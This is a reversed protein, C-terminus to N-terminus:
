SSIVVVIGPSGVQGAGSNNGNLSAGGGGPGAGYNGGLGGNFASGTTASSGGAGGSGAMALSASANSYGSSGAAGISGTGGNQNQQVCTGGNGGAAAAPSVPLGGGSGGGPGASSSNGNNGTTNSPAGGSGGTIHGAGGTAATGASGTGGQGGNGGNARCKNGFSSAGGAGGANGDTNDTTVATGATGGTGVTVTETAGCESAPLVISSAGGGAGGGGAYCATGSAGRRGSGSGGSAAIVSAAVQTAWAPKTWTGSTTFVQVDVATLPKWTGPSGATTCVWVKGAQTVVFDGVVFTGSTPAGSATGGVFRVASTAGTLGTPAFDSAVVEGVYSEGAAMGSPLGSTGGSGYRYKTSVGTFNNPGIKSSSVTDPKFWFGASASGSKVVLNNHAVYVGDATNDIKVFRGTATFDLYFDNNLISARTLNQAWIAAYSLSGLFKNGEIKFDTTLADTVQNSSRLGIIEAPSATADSIFTNGTISVHRIRHDWDIAAILFGSIINDSITIQECWESSTEVSGALVIGEEVDMMRNGAILIQKFYQGVTTSATLYFGNDVVHRLNNNTLVHGTGVVDVARCVTDFDNDTILGNACSADSIGICRNLTTGDASTAGRFGWDSFSCGTVFFKTCSNFKIGTDAQAVAPKNLFKSHTVGVRDCNNFRITTKAINNSDFVGNTIHTEDGGTDVFIWEHLGSTTAKLTAGRCDIFLKKAWTLPASILYPGNSPNLLVIAGAPAESIIGALTATDDGGSAPPAEIGGIDLAARGKSKDNSTVFKWPIEAM